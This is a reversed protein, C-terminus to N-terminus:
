LLSRNIQEFEFTLSIVIGREHKVTTKKKTERKKESVDRRSWKEIEWKGSVECSRM